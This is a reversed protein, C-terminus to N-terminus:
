TKRQCVTEKFKNKFFKLTKRVEADTIKQRDTLKLALEQAFYETLIVHKAKKQKPNSLLRHKGDVLFVNDNLTNEIIYWWGKDHGAVSIVVSGIRM